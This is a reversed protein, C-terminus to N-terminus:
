KGRQGQMWREQVRLYVQNSVGGDPRHNFVTVRATVDGYVGGYQDLGFTRYPNRQGAAFLAAPVHAALQRTSIFTTPVAVDNIRVVSELAYGNGDVVMDLDPSGETVQSPNIASIQPEPMTPIVKMPEPPAPLYTPTYGPRLFVGGKMVRDIRRTNDINALPNADLVVLDAYTGRGLFGIPPAPHSPRRATLIEAGWITESKLAQMPTLGAEVMMAMELHLSLGPTGVYPDDTGGILKGGADVWRKLFQGSLSYDQRLDALDAPALRALPAFGAYKSGAVWVGQLRYQYGDALNPPFYAMLAGDSYLRQMAARYEAAHSSLSSFSYVLTPNLYINRSVAEHILRDAGARDALFSAWHLIKGQRYADYQEPTMLAEGLGWMHELVDHGLPISEAANSTHGYVMLGAAHLDETQWQWLRKNPSSFDMINAFDPEGAAYAQVAATVEARTMDPRRPLQVRGNGFLRPTRVGSGQSAKWYPEGLRPREGMAFVSTVGHNLYLEGTFPQYHSHSDILGPIVYKGALDVVRANAPIPTHAGGLDAIRDGQIVIVANPILREAVVDVVSAGKLVLPASAEQAVAQTGAYSLTLTLTLLLGLPKSRSAVTSGSRFM